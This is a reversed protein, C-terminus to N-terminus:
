TAVRDNWFGFIIFISDKGFVTQSEELASFVPFGIWFMFLYIFEAPRVIM